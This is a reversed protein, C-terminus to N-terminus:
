PSQITDSTLHRVGYSRAGDGFIHALNTLLHEHTDSTLNQLSSVPVLTVEPNTSGARVLFALYEGQLWVAVYPVVSTDGCSYRDTAYLSIGLCAARAGKNPSFLASRVSSFRSQTGGRHRRWKPTGTKENMQHIGFEVVDHRDLQQLATDWSM